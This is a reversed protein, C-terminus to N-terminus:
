GEPGSRGKRDVLVVVHFTAGKDKPWADLLAALEAEIRAIAERRAGDDGRGERCATSIVAHKAKVGPLFTKPPELDDFTM